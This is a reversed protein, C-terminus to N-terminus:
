CEALHRDKRETGERLPHQTWSEAYHMTNLGMQSAEKGDKGRVCYTLSQPPHVRSVTNGLMTFGAVAVCRSPLIATLHLRAWMGAEVM